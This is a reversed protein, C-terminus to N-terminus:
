HITYHTSTLSMELFQKMRVYLSQSAINLAHSIASQGSDSQLSHPEGMVRRDVGKLDRRPNQWQVVVEQCWAVVGYGQAVLHLSGVTCFRQIGSNQFLLFDLSSCWRSCQTYLFGLLYSKLQDSGGSRVTKEGGVESHDLIGSCAEIDPVLSCCM